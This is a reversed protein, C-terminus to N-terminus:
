EAFVFIRVGGPATFAANASDTEEVALGQQTLAAIRAASDASFYTLHPGQFDATQHLGIMMVGDSYIGWPEPNDTRLDDDGAAKRFGLRSWYAASARLDGVPLALEGFEGLPFPFDGTTPEPAELVEVLRVTLGDRVALEAGAAAGLICASEGLAALERVTRPLDETFYTLTPSPISQTYLGLRVKGDFLALGPGAPTTGIERYGLKAYFGAAAPVDDVSVSIECSEGLRM